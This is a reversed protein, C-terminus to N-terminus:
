QQFSKFNLSASDIGHLCNRKGELNKGCYFLLDKEHLYSFSDFIIKLCVIINFFTHGTPKPKNRNGHM